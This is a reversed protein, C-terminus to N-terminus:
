NISGYALPCTAEGVRHRWLTSGKWCNDSCNGKVDYINIEGADGVLKTLRRKVVGM